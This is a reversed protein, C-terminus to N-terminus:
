LSYSAPGSFTSIGYYSSRGTCSAYYVLYVRICIIYENSQNSCDDSEVRVQYPLSTIYIISSYLSSGPCYVSGIATCLSRGDCTRTGPVRVRVPFTGILGDIKAARMYCVQTPTADFTNIIIIYWPAVHPTHVTCTSM